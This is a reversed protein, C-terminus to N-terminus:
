CIKETCIPAEDAILIIHIKQRHQIVDKSLTKLQKNCAKCKSHIFSILVSGSPLGEQVKDTYVDVYKFVPLKKGILQDSIAQTNCISENSPLTIDRWILISCTGILNFIILGLLCKLWYERWFRKLIM